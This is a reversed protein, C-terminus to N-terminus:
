SQKYAHTINTHYLYIHIGDSGLIQLALTHRHSGDELKETYISSTKKEKKHNLICNSVSSLTIRRLTQLKPVNTIALIGEISLALKIENLINQNGYALKLDKYSIETLKFKYSPDNSVISSIITLVVLIKFLNNFSTLM